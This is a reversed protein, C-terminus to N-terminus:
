FVPSLNVSVDLNVGEVHAYLHIYSNISICVCTLDDSCTVVEIDAGYDIYMYMSMCVM